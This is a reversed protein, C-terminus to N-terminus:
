IKNGLQMESSWTTWMSSSVLYLLQNLWKMVSYNDFIINQFRWTARNFIVLVFMLWFHPEVWKEKSVFLFPLISIMEYNKIGLKSRFSENHPIRFRRFFFYNKSFIWWNKQVYWYNESSLVLSFDIGVFKIERTPVGITEPLFEAIWIKRRSTDGLLIKNKVIKTKKLKRWDVYM